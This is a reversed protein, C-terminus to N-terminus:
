RTPEAIEKWRTLTPGLIYTTQRLADLDKSGTLVMATKLEHETRGFFTHVADVGGEHWAKLVPRAFGVCSAGLAIAKAADLGHRMGGSAITELGTKKCYLVSAATPIGWEEFLSPTMYIQNEVKVWSTGGAGAADVTKIGADALSRAVQPSIGCGTEKVVIPFPLTNSLRELTKLCGTFDRDGDPQALEQAPNLHVFLGKADIRQILQAIAESSLTRAQVCGINGFLVLDGKSPNVEYGQTSPAGLLQPRQSGLAFAYGRETALQALDKNIREAEPTGGTMSSIIFPARLGFGALSASLNLMQVNVEPLACHMLTVEDMLTTNQEFAVSENLCARIHASKRDLPM